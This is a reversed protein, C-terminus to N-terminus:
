LVGAAIGEIVIPELNGRAAYTAATLGAPGSGVIVVKRHGCGSIAEGLRRSSGPGVLLLPQPIPLLGTVVGAARMATSLGVSRVVNGVVAPMEIM